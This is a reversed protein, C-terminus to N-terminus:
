SGELVLIGFDLEGKVAFVGAFDHTQHFAFHSEAQNFSRRAFATDAGLREHFVLQNQDCWWTEVRV